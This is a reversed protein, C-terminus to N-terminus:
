FYIKGALQVARGPSPDLNGEASQIVNSTEGFTSSLFIGSPPQFNAHNFVNFGELRLQIYQKAEPTFHINKTVSLNTYNFGPGRFFNRTTNGFTGPAEASFPTTDFYQYNGDATPKSRPNYRAIKFSSTNPVDPCGFYSFEDCYGSNPTGYSIGVPNGTQVATVGSIGWGGLSEALIRNSKLFGVVPVTYVYSTSLHHRADFDSSGYNLYKYGPVYNLERGFSGYGSEEGGFSSEYGSFDDLAHSYTYAVTFQLGHSSAKILSAQLSNYNSSGETSQDAVSLYWPIGNPAQGPGSGTTGPVVATQATDEPDTLHTATLSCTSSALCAAQGAATIPDGEYWSSLRHSLSGVYGVQAILNFGLSRQINLNFNYTYPVSYSPSFAALDLESQANWNIVDGVKPILYPFPNSESVTANGTVDQFPNSFGPSGGASSAGNSTFFFPPDALNQLSQEEMDRNYYLGFGARVSFKHTGPEGFLASPGSSPSWAFGVRPGFRNYHTTPGGAGNCGSDGPWSLGPPGGPFVTSSSSSNQWCIIGLGGDQRNQNPGEADWGIGLNVTFDPTLKWNDQAYGYLEQAVADIFGDSTQVYTDPIGLVFDIVPDGSSYTGGGEFKFEGNNQAGYTNRVRFQEFSGGFKFTHNGRVWTFSDAYTLNTDIRPQPGEPSNGLDIYSTGIEMFPVGSLASQPTISFGLASPQSPSAPIVDPYNFRFYGGHLENLLNPSFTHTWSANFIKYHEANIQAFGPLTAGGFSLTNFSPSSQFVTAAWLSDRASLTYDVRVIGQDQANTNPSNFKYTSTGANSQPVYTNVLNSAISNWSTPPIIVTAGSTGAPFCDAWTEPSAASPDAVCTGASTTINFPIPKTSLGLSNTIQSPSLTSGSPNAYNQDNTFDGAFQGTPATASKTGSFTPNNTGTGTRSRLGQYAVFLFLKNKFVPGGLTGGYLNQHYVPRDTSFYNGNNMFTDRYYEFGSGHIQNTGSKLIQNVVSGSNRAFEPNMTSTVINVEQLADPNIFIGEDQLPGDNIDTGNLVYSNQATQNGNSAYAGTRDSSEVVGPQLKQLGDPDRGELPIGELQDATAIQKLQTDSTDVQLATASVEVTQSEAGVTLKADVERNDNVNLTLGTSSFTQFGPAVVTVIYPGGVQLQPFIYYGSKDAQQVTKIGTSTNLATVTAGPVVAGSSDTVTGHLAAYVSQASSSVSFSLFMLLLPSLYLKMMKMSPEKKYVDYSDTM